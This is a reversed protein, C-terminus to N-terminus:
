EDLDALVWKGSRRVVCVKHQNDKGFLLKGSVDLKNLAVCGQPNVPRLTGAEPVLNKLRLRQIVGPPRLSKCAPCLPIQDQAPPGESCRGCVRIECITCSTVPKTCKTCTLSECYPCCAAEGVLHGSRDVSAETIQQGSQHCQVHGQVEGSRITYSIALPSDGTTWRETVSLGVAVRIRTDELQAEALGILPRAIHIDIEDLFSDMPVPDQDDDFSFSPLTHRGEFLEQVAEVTLESDVPGSDPEASRVVSRGIFEANTLTPGSFQEADVVKTVEALQGEGLLEEGATAQVFATALDGSLRFWKRTSNHRTALVIFDGQRILGASTEDLQAVLAEKPPHILPETVWNSAPGTRWPKSKVEPQTTTGQSRHLGEADAWVLEHGAVQDLHLIPLPSADEALQTFAREADPDPEMEIPLLPPRNLGLVRGARVLLVETDGIPSTTTGTGVDVNDGNPMTISASVAHHSNRSILHAHHSLQLAGSASHRVRIDLESSDLGLHDIVTLALRQEAIPQHSAHEWSTVEGSSIQVKVVERRHRGALVIVEENDRRSVRMRLHEAHLSEPPSWGDPLRDTFQRINGYWDIEFDSLTRGASDKPMLTEGPGIPVVGAKIYQPPRNSILYNLEAAHLDHWHEQVELAPEVTVETAAATTNAVTLVVAALDEPALDLARTEVLGAFGHQSPAAAHSDTRGATLIFREAVSRHVCIPLSPKALRGEIDPPDANTAWVRGNNIGHSRLVEAWGYETPYDLDPSGPVFWPNCGSAELLFSHNLRRIHVTVGEAAASCLVSGPKDDDEGPQFPHTQESLLEPPEDAAVRTLFSRLGTPTLEVSHIHAIRSVIVGPVKPVTERRCIDLVERIGSGTETHVDPGSGDAVTLSKAASLEADSGAGNRIEWSAQQVDETTLLVTPNADPTQYDLAFAGVSLPLNHEEAFNRLIRRSEDDVDEDPVVVQTSHGDQRDLHAEREGVLLTCRGGLRFGILYDTDLDEARVPQRCAKCLPKPNQRQAPPLCSRCVDLKCVACSGFDNRTKCLECVVEDCSPCTRTRALDIPHEGACITLHSIEEGDTSFHRWTNTRLDLEAPIIFPEAAHSWTEEIKIVPSAIIRLALLDAMVKVDPARRQQLLTRIENIQRIQEELDRRREHAGAWTYELQTQHQKLQQNRSELQRSTEENVREALESEIGEVISTLEPLAATQVESMLRNPNLTTESLQSGVQLDEYEVTEWDAERQKYWTSVIQDNGTLQDDSTRWTAEVAGLEPGLVRRDVFEINPEAIVEPLSSLSPIVPVEAVLDGQERIAVLFEEFLESGVVFLEASPHEDLAEASFALHLRDIGFKSELDPPLKATVFHDTQYLIEAGSLSLYLLAFEEAKRELGGTETALHPMLDDSERFSQNGAHPSLWALHSAGDLVEDVSDRAIGVRDGIENLRQTLDVNNTTSTLASLISRSLPEELEGLITTAQGFLLEFMRLKDKLIGYVNEDITNLAFFNAVHVDRTQTVRHVRGIRQEIAMPNWPLDYNVVCNAFQWNLGVSGASTSVMVQAEDRFRETAERQARRSIQGHYSATTFDHQELVRLIDKLVDTQQCFVLVKGKEPDAVWERCLDVLVLQRSTIPFDLLLDALENLVQRAEPTTTPHAAIRRATTLLARPSGLLRQALNHRLLSDVPGFSGQLTEAVINYVQSELPSLEFPVDKTHRTVNDLGAQARTTRVMVSQLLSRLADPDRPDRSNARGVFRSRFDGISLFTGPRILEILPYLEELRNQVPTATLFLRFRDAIGELLQRTLPGGLEKHAEDVILLDWERSQLREPVNRNNKTGRALHPSMILRDGTTAMAQPGTEVIEFPEDFKEALESAWQDSLSRPCLILVKSVMGRVVLEKLILGAEITKGLGVEDALVARGRMPGLVRTAAAIQHDMHDVDALGLAILEDFTNVAALKEGDLRLDFFSREDWGDASLNAIFQDITPKHFGVPGRWTFEDNSRNRFRHVELRHRRRPTSDVEPRRAGRPPDVLVSTLPQSFRLRLKGTDSILKFLDDPAARLQIEDLLADGFLTRNSPDWACPIGEGDIEVTLDSRYAPLELDRTATPTLLLQGRRYLDDTLRGEFDAM